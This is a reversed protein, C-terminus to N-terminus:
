GVALTEMSHDYTYSIKKNKMYLSLYALQLVNRRYM